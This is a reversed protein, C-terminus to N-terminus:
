FLPPQWHELVTAETDGLARLLGRLDTPAGLWLEPILTSLSAPTDEFLAALGQEPYLLALRDRGPLHISARIQAVAPPNGYRALLDGLSFYPSLEATQVYTTGVTLLLVCGRDEFRYRPPRGSVSLLPGFAAVAQEVTTNGLAVTLVADPPYIDACDLSPPPTEAVRM